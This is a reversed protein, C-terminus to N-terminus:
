LAEVPQFKTKELFDRVFKRLRQDSTVSLSDSSLLDEGYQYGTCICDFRDQARDDSLIDEESPSNIRCTSEAAKM